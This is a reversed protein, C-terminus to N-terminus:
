FDGDAVQLVTLGLGRWMSVVQNRDDLVVAVQYLHRVHADFLEAKVIADKRMDGASRMHLADYPLGVHEALWRETAERCGDTRGSMFVVGHGAAHLARVTAVVPVNPRDEHVRTEDFPSRSGALAVTGDIDVLVISPKGHPPEYPTVANGEDAPDDALPLPHKQGRVFRQWMDRIVAAGIPRERAADRRLCEEMAVDTLDIVTFEAGTLVALRRLDRAVRQPLNTDDCIVDVGRKLLATIAADRASIIARETGKTTAGQQVFTGAHCMARLNDRNVRARGVPNEAVWAHALTTKGSAPLGRTITLTPM